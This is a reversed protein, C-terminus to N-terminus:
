INHVTHEFWILIINNLVIKTGLTMYFFHLTRLSFYIIYVTVIYMEYLVSCCMSVSEM